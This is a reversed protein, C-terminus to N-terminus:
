SISNNKAKISSNTLWGNERYWTVTNNIGELVGYTPSINLARSLKQNSYAMDRIMARVRRKSLPMTKGSLKSAIDCGTAIAYGLCIPIRLISHKRELAKVICSVLEHLQYPKDAAIFVQGYSRADNKVAVLVDIFDQIYYFNTRNEGNGFIVFQGRDIAKVLEYISGLHNEGFLATPRLVAVNFGHGSMKLLLDEAAKKTKGYHSVYAGNSEDIPLINGSECAAISSVYIFHRVGSEKCAVALRQTGLVNVQDMLSRETSSEGITSYAALHFVTGVNAVADSLDDNVIDAKLWHVSTGFRQKIESTLTSRHMAVIKNCRGENILRELLATGVFGSAGTVLVNASNMQLGFQFNTPVAIWM